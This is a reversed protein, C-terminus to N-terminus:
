WRSSTCPEAYVHGCLAPLAVLETLSGNGAVVFGIIGGENNFVPGGSAGPGSPITSNLVRDSVGVIPGQTTTGVVGGAAGIAIGIDGIQPRGSPGIALAAAPIPATTVVAGLDPDEHSNWVKGPYSLGKYVVTVSSYNTYFCDEVVHGATALYTNGHLLADPSLSIPISVGTGLSGGGLNPNSCIITAISDGYKAAFAGLHPTPVSKNQRPTKWVKFNGIHKTRESVVKGKVKQRPVKIRYAVQSDEANAFVAPQITSVSCGQKDLKMRLILGDNEARRWQGTANTVELVANANSYSKSFCIDYDVLDGDVHVDGIVAQSPATLSMAFLALVGILAFHSKLRM